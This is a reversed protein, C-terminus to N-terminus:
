KARTCVTDNQFYEPGAHEEMYGEPGAHQEMIPGATDWTGKLDPRDTGRGAGRGALSTPGAM